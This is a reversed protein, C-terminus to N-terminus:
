IAWIASPAYACRDIDLGVADDTLRLLRLFRFREIFLQSFYKVTCVSSYIYSQKTHRYRTDHYASWLWMGGDSMILLQSYNCVTGPIPLTRHCCSITSPQSVINSFRSTLSRFPHRDVTRAYPSSARRKHRTTRRDSCMCTDTADFVDCTVGAFINVLARLKGIGVIIGIAVDFTVHVDIRSISAIFKCKLIICQVNTHAINGIKHLPRRLTHLLIQCSPSM